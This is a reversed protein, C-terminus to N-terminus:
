EVAGRVIEQEMHEWDAVPLRLALMRQLAQQREDLPTEAAQQARIVLEVRQREALPLPEAPKFVGNEYTAEVTLTM